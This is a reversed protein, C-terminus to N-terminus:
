KVNNKSSGIVDMLNKMMRDYSEFSGNNNNTIEKLTLSNGNLIYPALSDRNNRIVALVEDYNKLTKVENFLTTFMENFEAAELGTTDGTIKNFRELLSNKDKVGKILIDLGFISELIPFLADVYTADEKDINGFKTEIFHTDIVYDIAEENEVSQRIARNFENSVGILDALSEMFRINETGKVFLELDEGQPFVFADEVKKSIEASNTIYYLFENYSESRIIKKEITEYATQLNQDKKM